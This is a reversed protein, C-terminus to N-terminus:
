ASKPDKVAGKKLLQHMDVGFIEALMILNQIKINGVGNEIRYITMTSVGLKEALEEQTLYNRKRLNRINEGIITGDMNMFYKM